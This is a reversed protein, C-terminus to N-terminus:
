MSFNKKRSSVLCHSTDRILLLGGVQRGWNRGLGISEWVKEVALCGLGERIEREEGLGLAWGGVQGM